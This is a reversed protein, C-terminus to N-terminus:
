RFSAAIRLAEDKSVQAELRYTVGDQEWLLTNGALRLTEVQINGLQDRWFFQHPQGELWYGPSGNVAVSDIRTGPGAAKGFLTADVAGRFEVVVASVGADASVPISVRQRYVLTLRENTAAFDLHVEDPAGLRADSPVKVPFSVRRRAEELTLREGPFTPRAAATASPVAPGRYIEIGRLRLIQEAVAESSAAAVVAILLVVTALAPLLGLRRTRLADWWGARPERLRARVADGMRTPRPYALREGIEELAAELENDRMPENAVPLDFFYRYAIVLRDDERMRRLAALVVERRERALASAEPSLATDSSARDEVVSLGVTPRRGTAKRRNIAENAVIRLLWPRFPAGERFRGLAYYAKVFAEQAAEEADASTGTIVYATRAAIAQYRTVLEAYADQDGTKAREVLEADETPRGEVSDTRVEEVAGPRSPERAGM